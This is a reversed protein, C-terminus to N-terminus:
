PQLLKFIASNHEIKSLYDEYASGMKSWDGAITAVINYVERMQAETILYSDKGTSQIKDLVNKCRQADYKAGSVLSSYADQIEKLMKIQAAVSKIALKETDM